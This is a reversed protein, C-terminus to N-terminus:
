RWVKIKRHELYTLMRGAESQDFTFEVANGTAASRKTVHAEDRRRIHLVLTSVRNIAEVRM